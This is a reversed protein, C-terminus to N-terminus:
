LYGHRKLHHSGRTVTGIGVGLKEAIQRQPVGQQLMEIIQLRNAVDALEGYTLLACLAREMKEPSDIDLLHNVLKDLHKIKAEM